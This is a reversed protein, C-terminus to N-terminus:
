DEEPEEPRASVYTWLGEDKIEQIIDDLDGCKNLTTSSRSKADYVKVIWWEEM